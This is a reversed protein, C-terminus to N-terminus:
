DLWSNDYPNLFAIPHHRCTAWSDLCFPSMAPSLWPSPSVLLHLWLHWTLVPFRLESCPRLILLPGSLDPFLNFVEPFPLAGSKKGRKVLVKPDQVWTLPPRRPPAHPSPSLHDDYVAKGSNLFCSHHYPITSTSPCVGPCPLVSLTSVLSLQISCLRSDDHNNFLLNSAFYKQQYVLPVPM